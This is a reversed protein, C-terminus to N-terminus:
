GMLKNKAFGLPNILAGVVGKGQLAQGVKSGGFKPAIKALAGGLFKNPTEEEKQQFASSKSRGDPANKYGGREVSLNPYMKPGNLFSRKKAM